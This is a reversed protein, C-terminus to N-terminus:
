TLNTVQTVKESIQSSSLLNGDENADMKQKECEEFKGTINMNLEGDDDGMEDKRAM